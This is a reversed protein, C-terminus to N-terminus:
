RWFRCFLLLIHCITLMLNKHVFCILITFTLKVKPTLFLCTINQEDLTERLVDIDMVIDKPLVIATAGKILPLWIDNMSGIFCPNSLQAWTDDENICDWFTNQIFNIASRNSIKVGKPKGTTGSTYLIIFLDDECFHPKTLKKGTPVKSLMAEDYLVAKGELSAPILSCFDEM